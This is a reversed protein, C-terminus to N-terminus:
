RSPSPKPREIGHCRKLKIDRSPLIPCVNGLLVEAGMPIPYFGGCEGGPGDLGSAQLAANYNPDSEYIVKTDGGLWIFPEPSGLGAVATENWCLRDVNQAILDWNPLYLDARSGNEWDINRHLEARNLFTKSTTYYMLVILLPYTLVVYLTCKLWFKVLWRVIRWAALFAHKIM